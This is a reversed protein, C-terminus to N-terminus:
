QLANLTFPWPSISVFARPRSISRGRRKSSVFSSATMIRMMFCDGNKPPITTPLTKATVMNIPQTHSKPAFALALSAACDAAQHERIAALVRDLQDPSEFAEEYLPPEHFSIANSRLTLGSKALRSYPFVRLMKEFHRVM